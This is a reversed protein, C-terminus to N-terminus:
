VRNFLNIEYQRIQRLYDSKVVNNNKDRYHIYKMLKADISEGNKIAELIGSKELGGVGVNFAFHSLALIKLNKNSVKVSELCKNVYSMCANFDEKLLHEAQGTTITDPLNDTPKVYHGYGITKQNAPCLYANLRLGEFAKISNLVGNYTTDNSDFSLKFIKVPVIPAYHIPKHEEILLTTIQERGELKSNSIYSLNYFVMLFLVLLLKKM